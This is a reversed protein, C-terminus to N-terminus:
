LVEIPTTANAMSLMADLREEITDLKQIAAMLDKESLNVIIQVKEFQVGAAAATRRAAISPEGLAATMRQVLAQLRQKQPPLIDRRWILWEAITASMSEVTLSTELNIKNIALKLSVIRKENDQISQLASKVMAEQTTGDKAFPDRRDEERLLNRLIFELSSQIKKEALKVENMAQAIMLKETM